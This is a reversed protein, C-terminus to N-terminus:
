GRAFFIEIPNEISLEKILIEIENSGLVGRKLKLSLTKPTMGLLKAIKTQNYGKAIWSAKLRNKDIM